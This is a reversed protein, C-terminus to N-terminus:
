QGKFSIANWKKVNEELKDFAISEDDNFPTAIPPLIGSLDLTSSSAHRCLIEGRGWIGPARQLMKVMCPISHQLVKYAM